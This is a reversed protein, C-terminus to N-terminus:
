KNDKLDLSDPSDVIEIGVYKLVSRLLIESNSVGYVVGLSISVILVAKILKIDLKELISNKDTDQIKSIHEIVLKNFDYTHEILEEVTERTLERETDFRDLLFIFARADKADKIIESIEYVSQRDNSSKLVIRLDKINSNIESLKNM